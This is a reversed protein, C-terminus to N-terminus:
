GAAALLCARMDKLHHEGEHVTHRGLWLLDREASEPWNYVMRRAWARASLNGFVTACLEAAVAVHALVAEIPHQDYGCLSVREDRHMRAFNPCEEVQALVARDRQVLLVDRTHCAYELASWTAPDPRVAVVRM